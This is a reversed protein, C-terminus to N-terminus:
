KGNRKSMKIGCLLGINFTYLMDNAKGIDLRYQEENKFPINRIANLRKELEKELCIGEPNDIPTIHIDGNILNIESFDIENKKNENEKM